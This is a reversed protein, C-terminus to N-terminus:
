ELRIGVCPVASATGEDNKINQTAELAFATLLDQLSQRAKRMQASTGWCVMLAFSRSNFAGAVASEFVTLGM